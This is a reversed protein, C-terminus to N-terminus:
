ENRNTGNGACGPESSSSPSAWRWRPWAGPVLQRSTSWWLANALLALRQGWVSKNGIYWGSALSVASLALEFLRLDNM